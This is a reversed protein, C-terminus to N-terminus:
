LRGDSCRPGRDLLRSEYGSVLYGKWWKYMTWFLETGAHLGKMMSWNPHLMDRVELAFKPEFVWFKPLDVKGGVDIRRQLPAPKGSNPDFLHFNVPFGIDLLNRVVLSFTFMDKDFWKPTWLAGLDFDFTMGEGALEPRFLDGGTALEGANLVQNINARHILKGTVGLSLRHGDGLGDVDRAYAYAMTTDLYVNMNLAAVGARLISMDISLDAPIFAVSWNPRAWFAGITPARMYYHEGMNRDLLDGYGGPKAADSLKEVEGIQKFLDQYSLDMGGRLMGRVVGDKRRALAAPNYFIASHDDVVASFANGMGMARTSIYEQHIAYDLSEASWSLSSSMLTLAALLKTGGRIM